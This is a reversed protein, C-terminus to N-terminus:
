ASLSGKVLWDRKEIGNPILCKPIDGKNRSKILTLLAQRLSTEIGSWNDIISQRNVQKKELDYHYLM